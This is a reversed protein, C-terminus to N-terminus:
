RWAPLITWVSDHQTQFPTFINTIKLGLTTLNVRVYKMVFYHLQLRTLERIEKELRSLQRETCMM